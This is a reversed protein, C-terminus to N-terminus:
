ISQSPLREQALLVVEFSVIPYDIPLEECVPLNVYGLGVLIVKTQLEGM